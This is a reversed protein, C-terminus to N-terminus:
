ATLAQLEANQLRRPYYAIRRIHGNFVVSGSENRGIRANTVTPLTGVIDTSVAAGNASIAFDDLKYVGAVRAIQNALVSGSTIGAQEVGGDVVVLGGSSGTHIYIRENSTGDDLQFSRGLGAITFRSTEAFLTGETANFWPSLTNVSAVDASRTVTSAVTPIYSTAFAGAELQAGWAYVNEGSTGVGGYVYCWIDNGSTISATIITCRRWNNGVDVVSATAGASVNSTALTDLNFRAGYNVSATHNRAILEITTTDKKKLYVSYTYVSTSPASLTQVARGGSGTSEILDGTVTGDPAAIANATVTASTKTWIANNFQESYTLLNTRQEEILLGRATASGSVVPVARFGNTAGSPMYATATASLEVQAGWLYIDTSLTNSESRAATSSTVLGIRPNTALSSSTYVVCRYWGGGASTITATVSSGTSGLSGTSLNFNAFPAATNDFFIQAFNNTGAKLYVSFTKGDASAAQTQLVAHSGLVGNGTLTDATTTGDPAATTNATITAGSKVWAANDFEQSYLLLNTAIPEVSTVGSGDFDFRPGYVAATTTPTYDLALPGVSVQAGWLYITTNVPLSTLRVNTRMSGAPIGGATIAIRWWEGSESVTYTGSTASSLSFSVFGTTTNFTLASYTLGSAIGARFNFQVQVNGGKKIYISSTYPSSGDATFSASSIGQASTETSVILADATVNGNPASASNATVTTATKTWSADDFQESYALLNHPAYQILGNPGVRTANSSRSFTIIDSFAKQVLAM